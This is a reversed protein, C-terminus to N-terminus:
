EFCVMGSWEGSRGVRPAPPPDLANVLGALESSLDEGSVRTAEAVDM